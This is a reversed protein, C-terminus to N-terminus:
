PQNSEPRPAPTQPPANVASFIGVNAAAIFPQEVQWSSYLPEVLLRQQKESPINVVPNDDETILHEVDPAEVTISQEIVIEAM